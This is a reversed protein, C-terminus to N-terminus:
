DEDSEPVDDERGQALGGSANTGDSSRQGHGSDDDSYGLDDRAIGDYPGTWDEPQACREMGQSQWADRPLEEIDGDFYQVEVTGEEADIDLVQFMGGKDADPHRYWDGVVPNIADFM